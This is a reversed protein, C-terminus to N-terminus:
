VAQSKTEYQLDECSKNELSRVTGDIGAMIMCVEDEDIDRGHAVRKSDENVRLKVKVSRTNIVTTDGRRKVMRLISPAELSKKKEIMRM